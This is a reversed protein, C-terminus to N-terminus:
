RSFGIDPAPRRDFWLREQDYPECVADSAGALVDGPPAKRTDLVRHVPAFGDEQLRRDVHEREGPVEWELPDEAAGEQSRPPAIEARSPAAGLPLRPAEPARHGDGEIPEEEMIARMDLEVTEQSLHSRHPGVHTEAGDSPRGEQAIEPEGPVELHETPTRGEAPLGPGLADREQLIVESPDAGRLRKLDLHERIADDLLGM